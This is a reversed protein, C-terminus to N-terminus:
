KSRKKKCHLADFSYTNGRLDLTALLRQVVAVESEAANQYAQASIVEGREICYASVLAVFDQKANNYNVVTSRISKGDIAIISEPEVYQSAWQFFAEYFARYDMRTLVQRVTLFSPLRDKKPEFYTILAEKHRAIFDGIARYGTCGSMNAMIVMLLVHSLRHRLGAARRFEPIAELYEILSKKEM